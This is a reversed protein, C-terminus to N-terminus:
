GPGGAGLTWQELVHCRDTEWWALQLTDLRTSVPVAGALSRRTSDIGVEPSAADLTLHPAVAPGFEGAYPPFQPFAEVLRATLRALPEQPEPVLHIIGNPFQDLRELRVDIPATQAAISAVTAVADRSPRPDFPALATIHAHGFREDDSVFSPDYHRTRAVVWDELVPVPLQLM